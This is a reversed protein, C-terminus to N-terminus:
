ASHHFHSWCMEALSKYSEANVGLGISAAIAAYVQSSLLGKDRWYRVSIDGASKSLKLGDSTKVLPHHLFRTTTFSTFNLLQALYLQAITSNYLDAGRVIFDIGFHVDDVLSTLQYAPYGDKRRIVFDTIELPMDVDLAIGLENLIKIPTNSDTKIRWAVNPTDLPISKNRCAGSYVGNPSHLAITNRSCNCAYVLGSDVLCNLATNYLASRHVQSFKNGHEENNKPGISYPINLFDLTEFIDILYALQTRDKDMDDIRLLVDAHHLSALWATLSFSLINGFHLYGSPTPAIRTRQFTPIAVSM